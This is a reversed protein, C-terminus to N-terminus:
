RAPPCRGSWASPATQPERRAACCRTDNLNRVRRALERRATGAARGTPHRGLGGAKGDEAEGPSGLASPLTATGRRTRFKEAVSAPAAPAHPGVAPGAGGTATPGDNPGGTEGPAPDSGACRGRHLSGATAGKSCRTRAASEAPVRRPMDRHEVAKGGAFRSIDMDVRDGDGPWERRTRPVGLDGGTLVRVFDIYKGPCERAMREFCASSGNEGAPVIAPPCRPARGVRCTPRASATPARTPGHGCGGRGGLTPRHSNEARDNPGKHRRHEVGPM